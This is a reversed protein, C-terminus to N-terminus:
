RTAPTMTRAAASNAEIAPRRVRGTLWVRISSARHGVVILGRDRHYAAVGLFHLALAVSATEILPTSGFSM